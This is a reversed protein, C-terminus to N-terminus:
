CKGINATTNLVNGGNLVDSLYQLADGRVGLKADQPACNNKNICEQITSYPKDIFCTLGFEHETGSKHIQQFYLFVYFGKLNIQSAVDLLKTTEKKLQEAYLKTAGGGYNHPALGWETILFEKKYKKSFEIMDDVGNTTNISYIFRNGIQKIIPSVNLIEGTLIGAGKNEFNAFSCPVTIKPANTLNIQRSKEVEIIAEIAIPLMIRWRKTGIEGDFSLEPENALSIESICKRYKGNILLEDLMMNYISKIYNKFITNNYDQNGWPKINGGWGFYYNSIPIQIKINNNDMEDLFLKHYARGQGSEVTWEYLRLGNMNIKKFLVIDNRKRIQNWNENVAMDGNFAWDDYPLHGAFYTQYCIGNIFKNNDFLEINVLNNNYIFYIVFIFILLLLILVM